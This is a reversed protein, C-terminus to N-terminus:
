AALNRGMRTLGLSLDPRHGEESAALRMDKAVALQEMRRRLEDLSFPKQLVEAKISEVFSRTDPSVTDGTIFLVRSTLDPRLGQICRYVEPGGLGPMRLDLLIADYDTLHIMRLSEAGDRSVDVQHGMGGLARALMELVAPEDDVALVRLMTYSVPQEVPDARSAPEPEDVPVMPIEVVFTTGRRPRSEVRIDGGHERVISQCISLGLGTGKGVPKTTFFPEFIHPLVHPPIGPGDDTFSIRLKGEIAVVGVTITGRGPGDAIAQIANSLLNLIVQEMKHVDAATKPTDPDFYTVVEINNVRCEYERLDLIKRISAGADFVRNGSNHSRAFSLLNDVIRGARESETVIAELDRKLVDDVSQRLALQSFGLIATLPNNLEHAVGAAMEGVSVLRSNAIMRAQQEKQGSIDDIVLLLCPSSGAQVRSVTVDYAAHTHGPGPLLLEARRPTGGRGSVKRVLARLGPPNFHGSLPAGQAPQGFREEFGGNWKLLRSRM